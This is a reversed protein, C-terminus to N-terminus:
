VKDFNAANSLDQYCIYFVVSSGVVGRKFAPTSIRLVQRGTVTLFGAADINLLAKQL